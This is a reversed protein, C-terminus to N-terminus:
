PITVNLRGTNNTEDLEDIVNMPDMTVELVYAGAPVDTIDIWQGSLNSSYVDAWGVQIGQNSCTYRASPNAATNIRTIDMLCFGVKKGNRVVAGTSDLLRYQAFSRFHYHGHCSGYEFMGSTAPNGLVLDATGINRTQTTFRLLKHTGATITGEQIECANAAFTETTIRPNAASMDVVIDPKGATATGAYSAKLTAGSYAAYGHLMVFYDGARPTTVTVTENNGNLYPRQDYVSTTALQGYKVYLDADGTGGSLAITVSSVGSPVAFKFNATSGQAGALNGVPTNNVLAQLPNNITYTGATVPSTALGTAFAAANIQTTATVLIPAVYVESGTTPATGNLTYRIVANATASSLSVSTQGSYSGPAPSFVPTAAATVAGSGGTYTAKLTVGSYAQYGRLMVYWTGAAPNTVSVSENSSSLYPRYDWATTTPLAGQKVYLDCDGSLGTIAFSAATAGAPVTLAYYRTSQLADTIPGVSVGSSLVQPSAATQASTPAHLLLTSAAATALLLRTVRTWTTMLHNM